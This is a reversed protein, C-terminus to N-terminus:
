AGSGCEAMADNVFYGIVFGIGLGVLLLVTTAACKTTMSMGKEVYVTKAGQEIEVVNPASAISHKFGLSNSKTSMANNVLMRFFFQSFKKQMTQILLSSINLYM